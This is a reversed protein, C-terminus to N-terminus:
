CRRYFIHAHNSMAIEDFAKTYNIQYKKILKEIKYLLNYAFEDFIPNKNEDIIVFGYEPYGPNKSGVFLIDGPM